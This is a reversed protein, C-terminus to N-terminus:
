HIACDKINMAIRSKHASVQNVSVIVADMRTMMPKYDLIFKRPPERRKKDFRM